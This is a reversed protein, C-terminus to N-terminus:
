EDSSVLISGMMSMMNVSKLDWEKSFDLQELETKRVTTKNDADTLMGTQRHVNDSADNSATGTQASVMAKGKIGYRSTENLINGDWTLATVVFSYPVDLVQNWRGRIFYFTETTYQTEDFSRELWFQKTFSMSPSYVITPNNRGDVSIQEWSKTNSVDFVGYKTCGMCGYEPYSMMLRVRAKVNDPKYYCGLSYNLIFNTANGAYGMAINTKKSISLFEKDSGMKCNVYKISADQGDILPSVKDEHASDDVVIWTLRDRPYDINYYCYQQFQFLDAQNRVCTILAVSPWNMDPELAPLKLKMYKAGSEDTIEEYAPHALASPADGETGELGSTLQQRYSVDRRKVDSYGDKQIVYEPTVMYCRLKSHIERCYWDEINLKSDKEAQAKKLVKWGETLILDYATSNVIYAHCMLSCARKWINSKNTDEDEIISQVNGGMSLIDWQLPPPPVTFRPQILKADDELIVVTRFKHKQANLICRLHSEFKGLNPLDKNEIAAFFRLPYGKRQADHRMDSRKNKRYQLNICVIDDVLVQGLATSLRKTGSM